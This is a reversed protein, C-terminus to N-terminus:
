FRQVETRSTKEILQTLGVDGARRRGSPAATGGERAMITNAGSREIMANVSGDTGVM